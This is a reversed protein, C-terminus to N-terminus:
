RPPVETYLAYRSRANGLPSVEGQFRDVSVPAIEMRLDGGNHNRPHGFRGNPRHLIPRSINMRLVLSLFACKRTSHVGLGRTRCQKPAAPIRICRSAFPDMAHIRLIVTNATRPLGTQAAPRTSRSSLEVLFHAIKYSSPLMFSHSRHPFVLIDPIDTQLVFSRRGRPRREWFVHM